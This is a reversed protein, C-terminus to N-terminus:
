LLIYQLFYIFCLLTGFDDIDSYHTIKVSVDDLYYNLYAYFSKMQDDSLKHLVMLYPTIDIDFKDNIHHVFSTCSEVDIYTEGIHPFRHSVHDM